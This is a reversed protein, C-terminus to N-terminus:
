GTLCTFGTELDVWVAEGPCEDTFFWFSFDPPDFCADGDKEPMVENFRQVWEDVTGELIKGNKHLKLRGSELLRRLIWLFAERRPEFTTGEKEAWAWVYDLGRGEGYDLLQEILADNLM